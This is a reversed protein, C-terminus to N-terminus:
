RGEQGRARASERERAWGRVSDCGQENDSLREREAEVGAHMKEGGYWLGECRCLSGPVYVYSVGRIVYLLPPCVTDRCINM